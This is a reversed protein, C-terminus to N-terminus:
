PTYVEIKHTGKQMADRIVCSNSFSPAVYRIKRIPRSWLGAIVFAAVMWLLLSVMVCRKM